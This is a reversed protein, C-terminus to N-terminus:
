RDRSGNILRAIIQKAENWDDSVDVTAVVQCQQRAIAKDYCRDYRHQLLLRIADKFKKAAVNAQIEAFVPGQLHKKLLLMRETFLAEHVADWGETYEKELHNIRDALSREMLVMPSGYIHRRLHQPMRISGIDQEIEILIVPDSKVTVYDNALLNEFNQQTPQPKQLNFDGLASGRHSALAEFDITPLGAENLERLMKTKGTGTRGNLVLLKHTSLKDIHSLVQHRYSKYGGQILWPKIDISQLLKAVATSRMGGRWCHVALQQHPASLESLQQILWSIKEGVIELGRQTAELVGVQKYLIGVEAREQDSFLPVNTAYPMAGLAFESPSRLDVLRLADSRLQPLIQFYNSQEVALPM